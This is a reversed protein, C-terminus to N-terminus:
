KGSNEKNIPCSCQMECPKLNFQKKLEPIDSHHILNTVKKGLLYVQFIMLSMIDVATKRLIRLNSNSKVPSNYHKTINLMLM